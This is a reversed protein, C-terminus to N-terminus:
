WSIQVNIGDTQVYHCLEVFNAGSDAKQELIQSSALHKYAEGVIYTRVNCDKQSLIKTTEDFSDLDNLLYDIKLEFVRMLGKRVLEVKLCIEPDSEDYHELFTLGYRLYKFYAKSQAYVKDM